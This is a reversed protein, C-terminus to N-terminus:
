YDHDTNTPVQLNYIYGDGIERMVGATDASSSSYTEVEDSTSETGATKDGKLLQIAPKLGKLDEKQCGISIKV